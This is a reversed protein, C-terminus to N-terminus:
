AQQPKHNLIKEMRIKCKLTPYQVESWDYITNVTKLEWIKQFNLLSQFLNFISILDLATHTQLLCSPITVGPPFPCTTNLHKWPSFPQFVHTYTSPLTWHCRLLQPLFTGARNRLSGLETTATWNLNKM